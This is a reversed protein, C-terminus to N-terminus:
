SNRAVAVSASPRLVVALKLRGISKRVMKRDDFWGPTVNVTLALTSWVGPEAVATVFEFLRSSAGSDAFPTGNECHDSPSVLRVLCNMMGADSMARAAQSPTGHEGGRVVGGRGARG